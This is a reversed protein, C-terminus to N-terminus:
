EGGSVSSVTSVAAATLRLLTPDELNRVDRLMRIQTEVHTGHKLVVQVFTNGESSSGPFVREIESRKVRFIVKDSGPEFQLDVTGERSTSLDDVDKDAIYGAVGTLDNKPESSKSQEYTAM